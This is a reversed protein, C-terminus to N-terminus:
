AVVEEFEVKRVSKAFKTTFGLINNNRWNNINESHEPFENGGLGHMARNPYNASRQM